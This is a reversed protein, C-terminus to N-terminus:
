GRCCRRPIEGVEIEEGERSGGRGGGGERGRGGGVWGEAESERVGVKVKNKRRGGFEGLPAQTGVRVRLMGYANHM